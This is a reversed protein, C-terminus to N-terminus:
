GAPLSTTIIICVGRAKTLGKLGWKRGVVMCREFRRFGSDLGGVMEIRSRPPTKCHGALWPQGDTEAVWANVVGGMPAGWHLLTRTIINNYHKYYHKLTTIIIYYYQRNRVGLSHLVGMVGLWLRWGWTPLSDSDAWDTM